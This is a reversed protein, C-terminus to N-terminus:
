RGIVVKKVASFDKGSAKLFYIGSEYQSVDVTFINEKSKSANEYILSGNLSFLSYTIQENVAFNGAVYLTSTVPNPYLVLDMNSAKVTHNSIGVPYNIGIFYDETEGSGFNACAETSDNSNGSARTRIRMITLGTKAASPVALATVYESDVKSNTCIQKWETIDFIGNQNYDIWVSAIVAGNFRTNLNYNQGSALQACNNGIAPYQIYNNPSCGTHSTVLQTTPIAVSDVANGTNCGGGLNATCYCLMYNRLAVEKVSSYANQTSCSIKCRFWTDESIATNFTTYNAYPVSVWAGGAISDQWQYTLGTAASNGQLSLSVLSCTTDASSITTGGVPMGSCPSVVTMGLEVNPRNYSRIGLNVPASNDASWYQFRYFSATSSHYFSKSLTNENGTGGANTEVIIELPRSSVRLFPSSLNIVVWQGSVFASSQITDDYVKVAGMEEASVQTNQLFVSDTQEKMYIVLPTKGPSHISTDCFFAISNIQGYQGIESQTLIFATREYGFFTGLPKRWEANALGATHSNGPPVSITVQATLFQILLIFTISLVLKASKQIM